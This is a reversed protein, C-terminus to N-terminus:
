IIEVADDIIRFSFAHKIKEMISLRGHYNTLCRGIAIQRGRERSPVDRKGCVADAEVVISKDSDVLQAITRYKGGKRDHNTSNHPHLHHIRLKLGDPVGYVDHGVKVSTLSKM